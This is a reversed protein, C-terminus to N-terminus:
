FIADAKDLDTLTAVQVPNSVKSPELFRVPFDAKARLRQLETRIHSLEKDADAETEIGGWPRWSTAEVRRYVGYTLVPKVVLSRGGLRFDPPTPLAKEASFKLASSAITLSGVALFKRRSMKADDGRM